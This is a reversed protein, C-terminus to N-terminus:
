IIVTSLHMGVTTLDKLHRSIWTTWELMFKLLPLLRPRSERLQPPLVLQKEPSINNQILVSMLFMKGYEMDANYFHYYIM